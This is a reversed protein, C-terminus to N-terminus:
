PTVETTVERFRLINNGSNDQCFYDIFFASVKNAETGFGTVEIVIPKGREVVHFWESPRNDTTVYFVAKPVPCGDFYTPDICYKAQRYILSVAYRGNPITHSAAGNFSGSRLDLCHQRADVTLDFGAGYAFSNLLLMGALGVITFLNSIMKQAM